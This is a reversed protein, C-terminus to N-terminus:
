QGSSARRGPHPATASHDFACAQFTHIRYGRISAEFGEQEAVMRKEIIAIDSWTRTGGKIGSSKGRHFDPPPCLRISCLYAVSSDPQEEGDPFGLRPYFDAVMANRDTPIYISRIEKVGAVAAADFLANMVCQEVGRELVRCSQLWSDITWTCDHTRVIVVGIMGHKAFKDQLRVQWGLVGVDAEIERVEEQIYRRTTLNFQNSKNILQTIRSRGAEDFPAITMRMDLSSLYDEYNGIKARIEAAAARGGYSEARAIDEQNLPM